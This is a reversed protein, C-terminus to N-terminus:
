SGPEAGDKADRGHLLRTSRAFPGGDGRDRLGVPIVRTRAEHSERSPEDRQRKRRWPGPPVPGFFCSRWSSSGSPWSTSGRYIGGLELLDADRIPGVGFSGIGFGAMYAAM